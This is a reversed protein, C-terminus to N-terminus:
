PAPPAPPEGMRCEVDVRGSSLEVVINAFGCRELQDQFRLVCKLKGLTKIPGDSHFEVTVMEDNPCAGLRQVAVKVGSTHSEGGTLKVGKGQNKLRVKWSVPQIPVTANTGSGGSADIVFEPLMEALTTADQLRASLALRSLSAVVEQTLAVQDKLEKQGEEIRRQSNIHAVILWVFAIAAFIGGLFDGWDGFSPMEQKVSIVVICLVAGIAAVIYTTLWGADDLEKPWSPKYIRM